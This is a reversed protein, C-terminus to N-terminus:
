KKMETDETADGLEMITELRTLKRLILDTCELMPFIFCTTMIGAWFFTVAGVLMLMGILAIRMDGVLFGWFAITYLFCGLFVLGIVFRARIDSIKREKTAWDPKKWLVTWLRRFDMTPGEKDGGPFM